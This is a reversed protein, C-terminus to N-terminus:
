NLVKSLQQITNQIYREEDIIVKDAELYLLHHMFAATLTNRVAVEVYHFDIKYKNSIFYSLGETAEKILNILRKRIQPNRQAEGLFMSIFYPKEKLFAFVTTLINQLFEDITLDETSFKIINYLKHNLTHEEIIGWLLDEKNDFYHYILGSTVGAEQAIDKITSGSFGKRSFVRLGAEILLDKKETHKIKNM